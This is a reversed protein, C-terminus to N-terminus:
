YPIKTHPLKIFSPQFSPGATYSPETMMSESFTADFHIGELQPPSPIDLEPEIQEFGRQPDVGGEM